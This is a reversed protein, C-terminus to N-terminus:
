PLLDPWFVQLSHEPRKQEYSLDQECAGPINKLARLSSNGLIEHYARM